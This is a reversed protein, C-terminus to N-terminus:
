KFLKCLNFLIVLILSYIFTGLLSTIYIRRMMKKESENDIDCNFFNLAKIKKLILVGILCIFIILYKEM